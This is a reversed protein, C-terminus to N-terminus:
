GRSTPQVHDAAVVMRAAGAVGFPLLVLGAGPILLLLAAAVGFGLVAPFHDRIFALRSRAGVGRLGLPYDLFDYAVALGTVIFKLPITVASAPPVLFTILSLVALIPLTVALATITVRLARFASGFFPQDPWSRGGLALEQRRAIADLAFGSLPQAFSIAFLFALVVGVLWFVIRLLWLGATSWAGDSSLIRHALDSGGWVAAAGLGFFLVTAVLTPILAWGWMSPRGVIFGLGGFLAGVGDFFGLAKKGAPVQSAPWPRAAMERFGLWGVPASFNLLQSSSTGGTSSSLNAQACGALALLM